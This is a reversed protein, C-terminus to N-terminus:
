GLVPVLRVEGRAGECCLHQGCHREEACAVDERLLRDLPAPCLAVAVRACRAHGRVASAHEPGRGRQPHARQGCLYMRGAPGGGDRGADGGVLQQERRRIQRAEEAVHRPHLAGIHPRPQAIRIHRHQARIPHHPRQHLRDIKRNHRELM